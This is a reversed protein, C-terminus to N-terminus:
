VLKLQQAAAPKGDVHTIHGDELHISNEEPTESFKEIWIQVDKEKALAELVALNARSVLAGERIFIIRLQPNQAMAILASIKIREATNLDSFLVGNVLVTDDEIALGDIPFKAAAIRTEKEGILRKVEDDLEKARKLAAQYTAHKTARDEIQRNHQNVQNNHETITTLEQNIAEIKEEMGECIQERKTVADAYAARDETQQELYAKADILKQELQRIQEEASTIRQECQALSDKATELNQLERTLLDRNKVLEAADKPELAQNSTVPCAKYVKEAADKARNAETRQAFATKHAVDIDATDLGVALRLAEAQKKADLRTFAEPDFSLNGIVDDLFKQPSPMKSGDEATIDLYANSGKAKRKVTYTKNAGNSLTLAVTASEAGNRIPAETGKRTLAWMVADLVSTKGQGNDGTLTIPNQNADIAVASLRKFDLAELRIIHYQSM